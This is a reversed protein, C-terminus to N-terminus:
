VSYIPARFESNGSFGFEFGKAESRDSGSSFDSMFVLPYGYGGILRLQGRADEAILVFEHGEMSQMLDLLDPKDGPAVGSLSQEYFPGNPSPKAKETYNLTYPTSYGTLWDQGQLLQIVGQTQGNKIAPFRAIHSVHVFKFTRLGAPNYGKHKPFNTIMM